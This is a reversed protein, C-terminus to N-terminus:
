IYSPPDSSRILLRYNPHGCQFRRDSIKTLVRGVNSNFLKGPTGYNKSNYGAIQNGGEKDLVCLVNTGWGYPVVKTRILEFDPDSQSVVRFGAPIDFPNTHADERSRIPSPCSPLCKFVCPSGNVRLSSIDVTFSSSSQILDFARIGATFGADKAQKASFGADKAQKATSVLGADMCQKLSLGADKAEKLADKIREERSKRLDAKVGAIKKEVASLRKELINELKEFRETMVFFLDRLTIEKEVKSVDTGDAM